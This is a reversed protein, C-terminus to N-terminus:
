GGRRSYAGWGDAAAAARWGRSAGSDKTDEFQLDRVQFERKPPGNLIQYMISNLSM